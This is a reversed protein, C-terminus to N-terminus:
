WSEDVFSETLAVIPKPPELRGDPAYTHVYSPDPVSAKSPSAVTRDDALLLYRMVMVGDFPIVTRM